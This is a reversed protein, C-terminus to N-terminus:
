RRTSAPTPSSPWTTPWRCLVSIRHMHTHAFLGIAGKLKTQSRKSISRLVAIPPAVWARFLMVMKATPVSGIRAGDVDNTSIQGAGFIQKSGQAAVGPAGDMAKGALADHAQGLLEASCLVCGLADCLRDCQLPDIAMGTALTQRDIFAVTQLAGSM